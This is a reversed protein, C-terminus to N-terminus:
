KGKSDILVLCSSEETHGPTHIVKLKIDGVKIEENDNLVKIGFTSLAKPGLYIEANYKKKLEVHGAIYDAHYHTLFVGKLTKGRAKIVEEYKKTENMPDILFCDNGSEIYYSYIALCSTMMQQVYFGPGTFEGKEINQFQPDVKDTGFSFAPTFTLKNTNNLGSLGFRTSFLMLPAITGNRSASTALKSLNRFAFTPVKIM